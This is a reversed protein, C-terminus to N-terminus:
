LLKRAKAVFAKISRARAGLFREAEREIAALAEHIGRSQVNAAVLSGVHDPGLDTVTITGDGSRDEIKLVRGVSLMSFSRFIDGAYRMGEITLIDTNPDYMVNLTAPAM